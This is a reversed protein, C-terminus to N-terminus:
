TLEAVIDRITPFLRLNRSSDIESARRGVVWIHSGHAGAREVLMDVYEQLPMEAPVLTMYTVFTVEKYLRSVEDLGALPVNSGLYVSSEGRLTILYHIYLLGLEHVEGFPLFLVYKPFVSKRVKRSCLATQQTVVMRILCSIFHEHVPQINGSQWMLGIEELFPIYYTEFVEHFPMKTLLHETAELFLPQDFTMMSLKFLRMSHDLQMRGMRTEGVMMEIAVTDMVALKSIKIGYGNLLVINLLKRLDGVDYYRLNNRDRLPSFMNYRKEWIRITHAKVGSFREMDGISFKTQIHNM